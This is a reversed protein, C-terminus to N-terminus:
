SEESLVRDLDPLIRGVVDKEEGSYYGRIRNQRDILVFKVSHTIIGPGPEGDPTVAGDDVALLFGKQIMRYLAEKEGTLFLWREPDAGYRKAYEALAAADDREPDVTFSVLRVNRDGLADQLEAMHRSMRPCPGTCRTFIFDAVWVGGRLDTDQVTDGSRETLTFPPVESLVPLPEPAACGLGLCSLATTWLGSVAVSYLTM